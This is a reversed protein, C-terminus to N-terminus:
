YILLFSQKHYGFIDDSLFFDLYIMNLSIRRWRFHPSLIITNQEYKYNHYDAMLYDTAILLKSIRSYHTCFKTKRMIFLSLLLFQPKM